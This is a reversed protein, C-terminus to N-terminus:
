LLTSCKDTLVVSCMKAVKLVTKHLDLKLMKFFSNHELIVVMMMISTCSAILVKQLCSSSHAFFFV